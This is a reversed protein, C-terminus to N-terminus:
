TKMNTCTGSGSLRRGRGGQGRLKLPWCFFEVKQEMYSTLSIASRRFPLSTAQGPSQCVAMEATPLVTMYMVSM